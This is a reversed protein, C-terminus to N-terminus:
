KEKLFKLKHELVDIESKAKDIKVEFEKKLVDASKSNAFFGINNEWLQIDSRLQNLKGNLFNVEKRIINKATPDNKLNEFKTKFGIVKKEVPNIKLTDLKENIAERLMNQVRDKEKIPVHGIATFERQYTKLTELIQKKDGKIKDDKISQIIKLKADLNQKEVEEINAFYTSKNNFFHDCAARFRKWVEDSHKRPVPGINKWDNQLKILAHTTKKWENSDKIAEAQACIDLKLNYNNIYEERIKSFFEKKNDYFLNIASRFRAWIADNKAKPARGITRWLEQIENVKKTASHWDNNNRIENKVLEEMKECLVVKAAYNNEQDASIKEYFERRREIVKDTAQKFREWVEDKKDSPLPGAEKWEQHYKQLLKFSENIKPNLLLEEAKECLELCYELNKKRDLDRLEENIRVKDLFKEVLFHYNQWLNNTENRPVQGIEKWESQLKRFADYTVKLEEESEILKKLEELIHQKKELNKIKEAEQAKEFTKKNEKYKAFAKDFREELVDKEKKLDKADGGDEIFTALNSENEQKLVNIFALKILSVKGKIKTIDGDVLADIADVLEEKSLNDYEIIDDEEEDEEEEEQNEIEVDQEDKLTNESEAKDTAKDEQNQIPLESKNDASSENVNQQTSAKDTEDSETENAPTEPAPPTQSQSDEKEAPSTTKTQDLDETDTHEKKSEPKEIDLTEESTKDKDKSIKESDDSQMEKNLDENLVM